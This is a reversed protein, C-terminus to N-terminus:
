SELKKRLKELAAYKAVTKTEPVDMGFLGKVLKTTKARNMHIEWEMLHQVCELLLEKEKKTIM